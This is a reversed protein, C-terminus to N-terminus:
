GMKEAAELLGKMYGIAFLRGRMTYGFSENSDGEMTPVHDPRCSGDFGVENYAQIAAFMDTPGNDHFTEVFNDATAGAM